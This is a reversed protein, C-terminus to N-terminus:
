PEIGEADLEDASPDEVEKYLVQELFPLPPSFSLPMM